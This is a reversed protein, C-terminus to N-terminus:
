ISQASEAANRNKMELALRYVELVRLRLKERIIDDAQEAATLLVNSSSIATGGKLIPGIPLVGYLSHFM